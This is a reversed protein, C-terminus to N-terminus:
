TSGGLPKSSQQSPKGRYALAVFVLGTALSVLLVLGSFTDRGGGLIWACVGPLAAILLATAPGALRIRIALWLAPLGYFIVLLAMVLYAYVSITLAETVMALPQATSFSQTAAWRLSDLFSGM